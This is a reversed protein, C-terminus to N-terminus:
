EDDDSKDYGSCDFRHNCFDCICADETFIGTQWCLECYDINM